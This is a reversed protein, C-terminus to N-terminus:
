SEGPIPKPKGYLIRDLERHTFYPDDARLYPLIIKKRRLLDRSIEGILEDEEYMAAKAEQLGFPNVIESGGWFRCSYTRPVGPHGVPEKLSPVEDGYSEEGVRNVLINYIGFVRSYFKSVIGWSEINSFETGMSEEASNLITVFVDAKQCIGLYPVAPHWVDNCIFVAITLDRLKFVPVWKGPAFYKREEFVGYNPLNLKRYAFVIEGDVAVLASNYFNMAPSEEIFGVVVATGKTAAVLKRIEKSDLRLAAEHYRHGVFYGTLALEPFAILRAGKEKGQHIKSIVDELNAKVDLLTPNTQYVAVKM